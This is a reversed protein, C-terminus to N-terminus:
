NKKKAQIEDNMVNMRYEAFDDRTYQMSKTYTFTFMTRSISTAAINKKEKMKKKKNKETGKKAMTKQIKKKRKMGPMLKNQKEESRTSNSNRNAM